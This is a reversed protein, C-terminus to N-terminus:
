GMLRTWQVPFGMMEEYIKVILSIIKKADEREISAIYPFLRKQHNQHSKMQTSITFNKMCFADSALPTPLFINKIGVFLMLENEKTRTDLLNLVYYKGGVIMGSQKFEKLLNKELIM